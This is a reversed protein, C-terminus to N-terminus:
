GLRVETGGDGGRFRHTVLLGVVILPLALWLTAGLALVVASAGSVTIETGWLEPQTRLFVVALVAMVLTALCTGVKWDPWRRCANVLAVLGKYAAIACIAASLGWAMSSTLVGGLGGLAQAAATEAVSHALERSAILVPIMLLLALGESRLSRGLSSGEPRGVVGLVAGHIAGLAAGFVFLFEALTGAELPDVVNTAQLVVVLLGGMVIGGAVSWTLVTWGPLGIDLRRFLTQTDTTGAPM